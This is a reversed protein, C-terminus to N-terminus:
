TENTRWSIVVPDVGASKTFKFSDFNCDVIQYEGNGLDSAGAAAGTNLNWPRLKGTYTTTRVRATINVTETALGSIVFVISQVQGTSPIEGVAAATGSFVGHILKASM